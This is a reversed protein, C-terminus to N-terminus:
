KSPSPTAGERDMMMQMMMEMMVMRREMMAQMDMISRAQSGTQPGTGGPASAGGMMGGGMRGMMEMGSQTAKMNEPLLAAREQPTKAAQMRRHLDRMKEMQSAYQDPSVTPSGQPAAMVTGGSAGPGAPASQTGVAACGGLAIAALILSPIAKM